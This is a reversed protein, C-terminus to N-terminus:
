AGAVNDFSRELSERISKPKEKAAGPEDASPLNVKAKTKASQALQKTELDKAAQKRTAELAQGRLAPDAMVATEYADELNKVIGKTLLAGAKAAVAEFHPHKLSGDANKETAFGAVQQEFSRNQAELEAHRRRETEGSIGSVVEKLGSVDTRLAANEKRLAIVEPSLLSDDTQDTPETKPLLDVGFDKALAMLMERKQVDTGTRLRQEAGMLASIMHEPTTQLGKYYDRYPDVAASLQRVDGSSAEIEQSRAQFAEKRAGDLKLLLSQAEAPLKAFETKEADPWDVPTQPAEAKAATEADDEGSETQDADKAAAEAPDAPADEGEPAAAAASDKDKGNKVPTETETKEAAPGAAAEVKEAETDRAVIADYTDGLYDGLGKEETQETM